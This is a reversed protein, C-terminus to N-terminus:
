AVGRRAAMADVSAMHRKIKEMASMHGASLNCVNHALVFNSIHNPGRHTVSVLHEVSERMRAPTEPDESVAEQCYFCLHGDRRRLTAFVPNRGSGRKARKTAPAARWSASCVFANVAAKSAGSYTLEDHKNRYVVATTPGAKFRLVEWENTTDILEAGREVLWARLAELRPQLKQLTRPANM